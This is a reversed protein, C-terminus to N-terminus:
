KCEKLSSGVKNLKKTCIIKNSIPSIVKGFIAIKEKKKKLTMHPSSAMPRTPCLRKQRPVIIGSDYKLFQFM